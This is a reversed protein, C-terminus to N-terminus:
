PTSWFGDFVSLADAALEECPGEVVIRLNGRAFLDRSSLRL